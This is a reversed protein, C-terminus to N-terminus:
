KGVKCIGIQVKYEEGCACRLKELQSKLSQAFEMEGDKESLLAKHEEELTTVEAAILEPKLDHIERKTQEVSQSMESNESVLRARINTIEDLKAEAAYLKRLAKEKAEDGLSSSADSRKSSIDRSSDTQMDDGESIENQLEDDLWRKQEQLKSTMDESIKAYFSSKEVVKASINSREQQILELTQSLNLSDSELSSVRKHKELIKSCMDGKSKVMEETEEMLRKTERKASNLDNELTHITTIQMQEEVSIKAAQDEVDNMHSRLTKMYHLYEEM